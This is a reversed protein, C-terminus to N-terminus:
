CYFPLFYQYMSGCPHINFINHHFFGSMCFGCITLNGNLHFTWLLCMWQYLFYILPQRYSLSPLSLYHPTVALLYLTEKQTSSAARDKSHHNCLETFINRINFFVNLLVNFFLSLSLSLPM